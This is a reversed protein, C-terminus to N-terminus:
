RRIRTRGAACRHAVTPSRRRRSGANLGSTSPTRAHTKRELGPEKAEELLRTEAAPEREDRYAEGRRAQKQAKVEVVEDPAIHPRVQRARVGHVPDDLAAVRERVAIRRVVEPLDLLA